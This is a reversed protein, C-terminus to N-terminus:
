CPTSRAGHDCRSLVFSPRAQSACPSQAYCARRLPVAPMAGLQRWAQRAHCNLSDGARTAEGAREPERLRQGLRAQPQERMRRAEWGEEVWRNQGATVGGFAAHGTRLAIGGVGLAM